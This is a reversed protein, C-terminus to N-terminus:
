TKMIMKQTKSRASADPRQASLPEIPQNALSSVDADACIVVARCSGNHCVLSCRYDPFNRM